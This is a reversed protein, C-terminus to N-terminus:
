IIKVIPVNVSDVGKKNQVAGIKKAMVDAFQGMMFEMFLKTKESESSTDSLVVGGADKINEIKKVKAEPIETKITETGVDGDKFLGKIFTVVKGAGLKLVNLVSGIGDVISMIFSKIGGIVTDKLGSLADMANSVISMNGDENPTFIGKIGDWISTLLNKGWTVISSIIGTKADENTFIGKIGDWVSNFVDKVGNIIMMPVTVYVFEFYAKIGKWIFSFANKFGDLISVALNGINTIMNGISSFTDTIWTWTAIFKDAIWNGADFIRNAWKKGDGLLGFTLGSFISGIVASIREGISVSEGEAKDFYTGAKFFGIIGDIITFLQFVGPLFKLFRGLRGGLSAFRGVFNGILKAMNLAPAFFAVISTIARGVFGVVKMAGTFIGQFTKFWGMLALSLPNFKIVIKGIWGIVKLITGLIKVDKLGIFFAKITQIMKVGRGFFAHIDGFVKRIGRFIKGIGGIIGKGSKWARRMNNFFRLFRIQVGRLWRGFRTKKFGAFLSKAWNKLTLGLKKIVLGLAKVANWIGKMSKILIGAFMFLLFKLIGMGKGDPRTNRKIRILLDRVSKFRRKDQNKVFRGLRDRKRGQKVLMGINSNVSTLLNEQKREQATQVESSMARSVNSVITQKIAM